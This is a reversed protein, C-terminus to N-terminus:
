YKKALYQMIAVTETIKVDGDVLYPLNPFDFGMTHKDALWGSKDYTPAAGVTYQKDEFDVGLYYFMYRIQAALGRITWYGLM